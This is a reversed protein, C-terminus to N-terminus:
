GLWYNWPRLLIWRHLVSALDALIEGQRLILELGLQRGITISGLHLQLIAGPLRGASQGISSGGPALIDDPDHFNGIRSQLLEILAFIYWVTSIDDAASYRSTTKNFAGVM